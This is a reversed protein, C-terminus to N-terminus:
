RRKVQEEAALKSRGNPFDCTKVVFPLADIRHFRPVMKRATDSEFTVHLGKQPDYDRRSHHGPGSADSGNTM